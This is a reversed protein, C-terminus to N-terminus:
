HSGKRGISEVNMKVNVKRTLKPTGLPNRGAATGMVARWTQTGHEHWM